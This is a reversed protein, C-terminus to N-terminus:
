EPRAKLKAKLFAADETVTENYSKFNGIHGVCLHCNIGHKMSECLTELNNQDLELEPHLHFPKKHHVQLKETGGCVACTPFKELHEKEVTRWKSSRATSLPHKGQAADIIHKIIRM